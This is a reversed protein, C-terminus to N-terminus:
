TLLISLPSKIFTRSTSKPLPALFNSALTAAADDPPLMSIRRPLASPGKSPTHPHIVGATTLGPFNLRGANFFNVANVIKAKNEPAFVSAKEIEVPPSKLFLESLSNNRFNGHALNNM